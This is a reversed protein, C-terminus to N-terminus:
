SIRTKKPKPKMLLPNNAPRKIPPPPRVPKKAPTNSVSSSSSSPRTAANSLSSPMPTPRAAATSSSTTPAMAVPKSIQSSPKPHGAGEPQHPNAYGNARSVSHASPTSGKQQTTPASPKVPNANGRPQPRNNASLREHKYDEVFSKPAKVVKSAMGSLRHTPISLRENRKVASPLASKRAPPTKPPFKPTAIKWRGTESPRDYPTIGKSNEKQPNLVFVPEIGGMLRDYNAFRQANTPRLKPLGNKDHDVLKAGHKRKQKDLGRLAKRM